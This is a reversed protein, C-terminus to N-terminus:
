RGAKAREQREAEAERAMKLGERILNYMAGIFGLAAGIL